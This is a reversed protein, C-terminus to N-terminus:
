CCCDSTRSGAALKKQYKLLVLYSYVTGSLCIDHNCSIEDYLSKTDIALRSNNPSKNRAKRHKSKLQHHYPSLQHM